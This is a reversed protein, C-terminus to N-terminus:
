YTSLAFSIVFDIGASGINGQQWEIEGDIVKFRKAFIFRFPFQPIAFRLGGGFSFRMDEMHFDNFFTDPTSKVAAADFFWDLALIGPVLPFRIEAWNEWLALGKNAREGTWGRGVFMGDVALKNSEEILPLEHDFFGPQRLIFSVGTHIGFIAKFNYTDTIPLSFLTLFYEAKTDSKMYHEREFPFIGYYGFRQTGYYGKSPDYYIDRQDLSISTWVSNAPTWQNNGERLTPDFPRHIDADYINKIVGSRIGGGLGLNGLFTTFRYGTSFGVSLSWQDYDILDTEPPYKSSDIYDAYSDFGDPFSEKEDGNFFPAREDMAAQRKTHRVTFDFGGSLPLGFIWRHTYELSASQTDPSANVEAGVMNGYGLFNRDNWKILGSIPFADPDSSGSFTLGFQIDTTPQEEVTFVLDMLSDSSGPTMDPIVNSFYQLNLLNRQGDLLKTRSFVDGAELPIERLIVQDKTKENGRVVVHEIHARGREVITVRFSLIGEAIDRNENPLITNFIYGNEAYLNMVRQLDAEV